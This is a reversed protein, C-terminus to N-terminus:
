DTIINENDVRGTNNNLVQDVVVVNIQNLFISVASKNGVISARKSSGGSGGVRTDLSFRDTESVTNKL